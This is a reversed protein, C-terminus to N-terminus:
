AFRLKSARGSELQRVPICGMRRSKCGCKAPASIHEALAYTVMQKGYRTVLDSFVRAKGLRSLTKRDLRALDSCVPDLAVKDL